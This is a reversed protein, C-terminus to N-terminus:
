LVLNSRFQFRLEQYSSQHHHIQAAIKAKEVCLSESGPVLQRSRMGRPQALGSIANRLQIGSFDRRRSQYGIGAAIGRANNQRKPRQGFGAPDRRISRDDTVALRAGAPCALFRTLVEVEHFYMLVKLGVAE